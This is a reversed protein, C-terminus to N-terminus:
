FTESIYKALSSIQVRTVSRLQDTMINIYRGNVPKGAAYTVLIRELESRGISGLKRAENTRGSGKGEKGHCRKCKNKYLSAVESKSMEYERVDKYGLGDKVTKNSLSKKNSESITEGRNKYGLSNTQVNFDLSMLTTAVIAVGLIIKKMKDRWKKHNYIM